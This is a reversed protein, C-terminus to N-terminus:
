APKLLKSVTSVLEDLGIPKYFLGTAGADLAPQADSPAYATYVLIPLDAYEADDRIQRVFDAGDTDPLGFDAIILDPKEAKAMYLGEKGDIATSVQYGKQTFLFHLLTRSDLNDEVILIKSSM